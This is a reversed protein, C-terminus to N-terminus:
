CWSGAFPNMSRSEKLLLGNKVAAVLQEAEGTGGFQDLGANVGKM